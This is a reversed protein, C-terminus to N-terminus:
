MYIGTQTSQTEWPFAQSAFGGRFPKTVISDPGIGGGSSIIFFPRQLITHVERIDLSVFVFDQSSWMM